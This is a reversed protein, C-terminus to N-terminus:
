LEAPRESFGSAEASSSPPIIGAETQQEGRKEQSYDAMLQSLEKGEIVEKEMLIKSLHELLERKSSLLKKVRQYAGGLIGSIEKDIKEAVSESYERAASLSGSSSQIFTARESSFSRQGCESMGYEMVMRKAIDTAKQIDDQAGTSIENFVLEEAVRGGYLIDIRALLETRTLLYRDEKPLTMTFGLAGFGRPIVSVKHVPDTGETFSAVLAHGMEHYAVIKKELVSM